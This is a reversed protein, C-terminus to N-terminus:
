GAFSQRLQKQRLIVWAIVPVGFLSMVVNLPLIYQSGPSQAIIDAALAFTAGMLMASPMLVRHDASNFLSRAVHPVAVGV